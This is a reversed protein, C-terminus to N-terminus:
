IKEILIQPSEACSYLGSRKISTCPFYIPLFISGFPTILFLMTGKEVPFLSQMPFTKASLSNIKNKTPRIFVKSNILTWALLLLFINKFGQRSIRYETARPLGDILVKPIKNFTSNFYISVKWKPHEVEMRDIPLHHFFYPIELFVVM